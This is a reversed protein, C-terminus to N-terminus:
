TGGVIELQATSGTPKIVEIQLEPAERDAVEVRVTVTHKGQELLLEFEKQSEFAEADIWVQANETSTVKFAVKGTENVQLEGQLVLVISKNGPRLEHLPLVGGVRAYAPLWQEPQSGLVFQRIHEMHPVEATLEKPPNKMVRWRQISPTTRIAFPGPKGLESIFRALDILEDHTLFKTIGQPMLSKGEIEEDIDATPIIVEKGQVDRMRVRTDDRDIIVGTLVLGNSLIFVKTVYQEKVALNPNLISNVIYDTPSSGGVASLDPGVQGGARSVSHCRMCSVDKRRFVVEGRVPDGKASVEMVLRAVEEPTPPPPDTAVGAAASLVNSLEADSRGVAYMYRLATKAVDVSLKTTKLAAALRDAGEKRNFFADLMEDPADQPTADALVAAAETAATPLDIAVLGGAAQMRVALPQDSASLKLLTDKSSGDGLSVLGSIAARQLEPPTKPDTALAQLSKAISPVKWTSALQIAAQQLQKDPDGVLTSLTELDGAPKVKRTNAADSLWTMAQLRLEKKFGDPKVVRDFVVRLDNENGRNCIMEVVTGQREPPLRGSEFLKMLPGVASEAATLHSAAGALRIALTL